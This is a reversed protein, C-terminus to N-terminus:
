TASMQHPQVVKAGLSQAKVILHHVSPGPGNSGNRRCAEQASMLAKAAEENETSYVTGDIEINM